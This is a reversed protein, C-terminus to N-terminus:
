ARGARHGDRAEGSVVLECEARDAARNLHPLTQLENAGQRSVRAIDFVQKHKSLM